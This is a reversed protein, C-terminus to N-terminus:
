EQQTIEVSNTQYRQSEINELVLKVAIDVIEEHTDVALENYPLTVNSYVDVSGDYNVYGPQLKLFLNIFTIRASVVTEDGAFIVLKNDEVIFRQRNHLPKNFPDGSLAYIDDHEIQKPTFWETQTEGNCDTYSVQSEIKLLYRYNNPLPISFADRYDPEVVASIVETVIASRLDDVRKQTQEFSKRKFNNGEYRQKVFRDAAQDLWYRKEADLIDPYAQADTKDLKQEFSILLQAVSSM